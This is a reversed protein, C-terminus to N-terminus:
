LTADQIMENRPLLLKGIIIIGRALHQKDSKTTLMENSITLASDEEEEEEVLIIGGGM